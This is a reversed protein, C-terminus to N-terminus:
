KALPNHTLYMILDLITTDYQHHIQPLRLRHVYSLKIIEKTSICPLNHQITHASFNSFIPNFNLTAFYTATIAPLHQLSGTNLNKQLIVLNNGHLSPSNNLHQM